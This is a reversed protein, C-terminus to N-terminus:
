IVESFGLKRWALKGVMVEGARPFNGETLRVEPHVLLAAPTVGRFLGQGKEGSETQLASM